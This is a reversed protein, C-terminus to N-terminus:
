QADFDYSNWGGGDNERIGAAGDPDVTLGWAGVPNNCEGVGTWYDVVYLDVAIIEDDYCGIAEFTTDAIRVTPGSSVEYFDTGSNVANLTGCTYEGVLRYDEPTRKGSAIDKIEGFDFTFGLHEGERLVPVCDGDRRRIQTTSNVCAMRVVDITDFADNADAREYCVDDDVYGCGTTLAAALGLLRLRMINSKIM